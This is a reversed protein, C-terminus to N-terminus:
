FTRRVYQKVDGYRTYVAYDEVLDYYVIFYSFLIVLMIYLTM